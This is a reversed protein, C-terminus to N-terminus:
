KHFLLVLVNVIGVGIVGLIGIWRWTVDVSDKNIDKIGELRAEMRTIREQFTSQSAFAEKLNQIDSSMKGMQTSIAQMVDTSHEQSEIYRIMLQKDAQYMQEFGINNDM